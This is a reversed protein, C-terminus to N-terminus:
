DEAYIGTIGWKDGLYPPRKTVEISCSEAHVTGSLLTGSKEDIWTLGYESIADRANSLSVELYPMRQPVDLFAVGFFAVNM